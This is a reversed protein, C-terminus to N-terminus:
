QWPKCILQDQWDCPRIVIPILRASHEQQRQLVRQMAPGQWFDSALFDASILLLIISAQSLHTEITDKLNDGPRIQQNHWFTIYGRQILTSLHNELQQRYADDTQASACFVPVATRSVLM